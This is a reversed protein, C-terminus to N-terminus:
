IKAVKMKIKRHPSIKAMILIKRYFTVKGMIIEVTNAKDYISRNIIIAVHLCETFANILL